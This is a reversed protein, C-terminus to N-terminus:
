VVETHSFGFESKTFKLVKTIRRTLQRLDESVSYKFTDKPNKPTTFIICKAQLQRSGGKNELRMPYKDTFELLFKWSMSDYRLENIIICEHADYGEFWIKGNSFTAGTYVSKYNSHGHGLAWHSKGSETEGYCWIITPQLVERTPEIYKMVKEAYCLHRNGKLVGRRAMDGIGNGDEILENIKVIDTRRGQNRKPKGWSYWDGEKSCYQKNADYSGQAPAHWCKKHLATRVEDFYKAYKFQIYGQLHPTNKKSGVEHGFIIFVIEKKFIKSKLKREFGKTYNNFTFVWNRHRM